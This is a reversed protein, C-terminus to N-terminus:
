PQNRLWNSNGYSEQTGDVDGLGALISTRLRFTLRGCGKWLGRIKNVCEETILLLTVGRFCVARCALPLALLNFFHKSFLFFNTWTSLFVFRYSCALPKVLQSQIWINILILPFFIFINKNKARSWIYFRGVIKMDGYLSINKANRIHICYVHVKIFIDYERFELLPNNVKSIASPLRLLGEHLFLLSCILPYNASSWLCSM